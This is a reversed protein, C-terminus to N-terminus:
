RKNLETQVKDHVKAYADTFVHPALVLTAAFWAAIALRIVPVGRMPARSKKSKKVESQGARAAVKVLGRDHLHERLQSSANSIQHTSMSHVRAELMPVLRDTSCVLLSGFNTEM